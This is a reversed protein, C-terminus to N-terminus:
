PSVTHRLSRAISLIAHDYTSGMVNPVDVHDADPDLLLSKPEQAERYLTQGMTYPVTTDSQGHIFLTPMALSRVKSLSDFHQTLLWRTPFLALSAKQGAMQGMSTFSSEVVLAGLDPHHTALEIAIAGGLSHGYLLVSEPAVGRQVTLYQWMAEADEYVRQENPFPGKSLGYGRYDALLVSFGLRNLLAAQDLNEGINHSNGHLFLVTGRPTSEPLWWGHLVGEAIPPENIWVDEYGLGHSAPTASLGQLPLFILRRQQSYVYLCGGLYLIGLTALLPWIIDPLPM